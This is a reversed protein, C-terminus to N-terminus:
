SKPASGLEDDGLGTYESLAGLHGTGEDGLAEFVWMRAIARVLRRLSVRVEATAPSLLDMSEAIEATDPRAWVMEQELEEWRRGPEGDAGKRVDRVLDDLRVYRGSSGFDSLVALLGRVGGDNRIFDLDEVVVPRTAYDDAQEVTAVLADLLGLLDHGLRRLTSWDPRSGRLHAEALIFTLKLFREYGPALQQMAADLNRPRDGLAALGAGVMALAADLETIITAGDEFERRREPSIEAM